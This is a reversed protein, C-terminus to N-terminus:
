GRGDLHIRILFSLGSETRYILAALQSDGVIPELAHVRHFFEMLEVCVEVDNQLFKRLSGHNIHRCIYNVRGVRTVKGDKSLGDPAWAAVDDDPALFRVTWNWLERLSSMVQRARDPGKQTLAHYAGELMGALKPDVAALLQRCSTETFWPSAEALVSENDKIEGISRLSVATLAVDKGASPLAFEPLQKLDGIDDASPILDLFSQSFRDTLTEIHRVSTQIGSYRTAFRSFDVGQLAASAIRASSLTEALAISQSAHISLTTRIYAQFLPANALSRLMEQCRSEALVLTRHANQAVAALNSKSISVAVEALRNDISQMVKAIPLMNAQASAMLQAFAMSQRDLQRLIDATSKSPLYVSTDGNEDAERRNPDEEDM